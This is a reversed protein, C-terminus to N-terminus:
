RRRKLILKANKNNPNCSCLYHDIGNEFAFNSLLSFAQKGIGCHQYEQSVYYASIFTDKIDQTILDSYTDDPIFESSIIRIGEGDITFQPITSDANDSCDEAFATVTCSCILIVSLFLLLTKKM